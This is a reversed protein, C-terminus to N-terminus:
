FCPCSNQFVVAVVVVVSSCLLLVFLLLLFEVVEAMETTITTDVPVRPLDRLSGRPENTIIQIKPSIQKLKNASRKEEDISIAIQEFLADVIMGFDVLLILIMTVIAIGCWVPYMTRLTPRVVM